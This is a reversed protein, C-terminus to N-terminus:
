RGAFMLMLAFLVVPVLALSAYLLMRCGGALRPGRLVPEGSLSEVARM